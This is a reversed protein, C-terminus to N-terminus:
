ALGGSGPGDLLAAAAPGVQYFAGSTDRAESIGDTYFLIRDAPGFPATHEKRVGPDLYGLGLPLSAELPEAFEASDGSLLLPSPHGCNLLRIEAGDRPIEAM